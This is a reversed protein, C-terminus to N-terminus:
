PTDDFVTVVARVVGIFLLVGVQGVVNGAYGCHLGLWTGAYTIISAGAWLGPSSNDVSGARYFGVAFTVMVIVHLVTFLLADM